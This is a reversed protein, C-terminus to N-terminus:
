ATVQATRLSPSTLADVAARVHVIEGQLTAMAFELEAGPIAVEVAKAARALRGAGFSAVAGKLSHAQEQVSPVDGSDFARRLAEPRERLEKSLLDLLTAVKHEGLVARLEAIREIDIATEPSLGEIAPAAPQGILAFRKQLADVSVPNTMFDTLGVNDYFRRREPTADATLAIIPVLANRGGDARIARTAALGDMEPMQMDM